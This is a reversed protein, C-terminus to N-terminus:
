GTFHSLFEFASEYESKGIYDLFVSERSHGTVSMILPTSIKGYYNTAFSRRMVHSTVDKEIKAIVMLEKLYENFRQQSIPRPFGDKIVDVADPILPIVIKKGTKQQSLHIIRKGEITEIDPERISFLDGVRQGVYCGLLLWKRVNSLRENLELTKIHDLEKLTLVVPRNKEWVVDVDLCSRDVKVGKSDAYRVIGQLNEITKAIYNASKGSMWNKLSECYSKGLRSMEIDRYRLVLRKFSGMNKIRNYSLGVGGKANKMKPAEALYMDMVDSFMTGRGNIMNELWEADANSDINSWIREALVSLKMYTEGPHKPMGKKTNWKSPDILLGTKRKIDRDKLILRVYINSPNKKSQLIFKLSPM